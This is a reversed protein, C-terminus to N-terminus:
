WRCMCNRSAWAATCASRRPVRIRSAMLNVLSGGRYDPRNMSVPDTDSEV